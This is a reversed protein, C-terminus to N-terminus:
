VKEAYKREQALFYSCSDSSCFDSCDSGILHYHRDEERIKRVKRSRGSHSESRFVAIPADEMKMEHGCKECYMKENGM